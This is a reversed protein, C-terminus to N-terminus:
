KKFFMMLAVCIIGLGIIIWPVVMAITLNDKENYIYKFDPTNFRNIAISNYVGVMILLLPIPIMFVYNTSCGNRICPGLAILTVFLVVCITLSIVSLYKLSYHDMGLVPPMKEWEKYNDGHGKKRQVVDTWISVTMIFILFISVTAIVGIGINSKIAAKVQPGSMKSMNAYMNAGVKGIASMIEKTNDYLIIKKAQYLRLSCNVWNNTLHRGSM